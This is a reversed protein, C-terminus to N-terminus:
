SWWCIAKAAAARIPCAAGGCSSCRARSRAPPFTSKRRHRRAHASRDHRRARGPRLQDARPLDPRPRRARVASSRSLNCWATAIARRAAAPAPSAKAPLRIRMDHDIGAPIKVERFVKKLTYGAGRCTTCPDKILQGRRSLRSLHNARPLHREIADGPRPRRLLQVNGPSSGPKAGSGKCETCLKTATFEVTKICAAPPKSCISHEARLRRRRRQAAPRSQTRRRVSRRVRRRRFNRRLGRLYRQRRHVSARQRRRRCPRLSRLAVAQRRRGAGRVGRGGGQINVVAEQDGPNRDPHYQLALKRYADAIEQQTAQRAVGLVEYYDRKQAM